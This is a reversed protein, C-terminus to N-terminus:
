GCLFRLDTAVARRTRIARLIKGENPCDPKLNRICETSELVDARKSNMYWINQLCFDFTNMVPICVHLANTGHWTLALEDSTLLARKTKMANILLGDSGSTVSGRRSVMTARQGM